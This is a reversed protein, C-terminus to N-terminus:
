ILIGNKNWKDTTHIKSHQRGRGKQLFRPKLFLGGDLCTWSLSELSTTSYNHRNNTLTPSNLMLHRTEETTTFAYRQCCPSLVKNIRLKYERLFRYLLSLVKSLKTRIKHDFTQEIIIHRINRTPSKPTHQKIFPTNPIPSLSLTTSLNGTLLLHMKMTWHSIQPSPNITTILDTM